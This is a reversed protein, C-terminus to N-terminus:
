KGAPQPTEKHQLDYVLQFERNAEAVQGTAKYAQGLLNHTIYNSPDMKAAHDLYHLAEVPQNLKLFTKGLLIYPATAGPELLVARNLAQQAEPYQESRV